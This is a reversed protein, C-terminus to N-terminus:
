RRVFTLDRIVRGQDLGKREFRTLPRQEFRPAWGGERAHPNTFDESAGAVALMQEAYDAWDTALRLVGGPRLVRAASAVLADDVLRRKRHRLKPWPDPFFLRLETVSAAPLAADLLPRADADLVRLNSLGRRKAQMVTRSAGPRYVEVALHDVEPEAAAAALVSDGSGTGIEIVLPASRGFEAVADFRWDPALSADREARQPVVVFDAHDPQWARAYRAHHRGDRRAFSLVDRRLPPEVGEVSDASM